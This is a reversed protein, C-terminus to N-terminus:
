QRGGVRIGAFRLSSIIISFPDVVSCNIDSVIGPRPQGKSMKCSFCARRAICVDSSINQVCKSASRNAIVPQFAVLTPQLGVRAVVTGGLVVDVDESERGDQSLVAQRLPGLRKDLSHVASVVGVVMGVRHSSPVALLSAAVSILGETRYRSIAGIPCHEGGYIGFLGVHRVSELESKSRRVISVQRLGLVRIASEGLTHPRRVFILDVPCTFLKISSAEGSPAVSHLPLDGRCSGHSQKMVRPMESVELPAGFLDVDVVVYLLDLIGQHEQKAHILTDRSGNETSIAISPNLPTHLLILPPLVHLEWAARIRPNSPRIQPVCM